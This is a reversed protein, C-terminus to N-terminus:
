LQAKDMFKKLITVVEARTANGQPAFSGDPNGNVLDLNYVWQVGNLAWTSIKTMDTFPLKNAAAAELDVLKCARQIILAMEERSISDNSRFKGYAGQILGAKAAKLVDAAYWANFDIDNFPNEETKETLGIVRNILAAFEARTVNKDPAFTTASIGNVIQRAAMVEITNKAWHGQIDSFTRNSEAVVYRSLHPIQCTLVGDVIRGGMYQWEGSATDVYQVTLLEPNAIGHPVPFTITIPKRLGANQGIATKVEIDYGAFVRLEQPAGALESATVKKTSVRVDTNGTLTGPPIIIMHEGDKLVIPKNQKQAEAVVNAAMVIEKGSGSYASMDIALFDKGADALAAMAKQNDVKLTTIDQHNSVSGIDSAAVIDKDSPLKIGGGGTKGPDEKKGTNGGDISETTFLIEENEGLTASNNASLEKSIVVKYTTDPKLSKAPEIFLVCRPKTTCSNGDFDIYYIDNKGEKDASPILEMSFPIRTNGEYLRICDRNKENVGLSSLTGADKNHFYNVNSNFVIALKETTLPIKQVPEWSRYGLPMTGELTLTGGKSPDNVKFCGTQTNGLCTMEMKIKKGILTNDDVLNFGSKFYGWNDTKSQGYFIPAGTDDRTIEVLVDAGRLGLGTTTDEVSGFIVMVSGPLYRQGAGNTVFRIDTDTAAWAMSSCLLSIALAIIVGYFAKIKTRKVM